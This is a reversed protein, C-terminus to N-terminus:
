NASTPTAKGPDPPFGAGSPNGSTAGSTTPLLTQSSLPDHHGPSTLATIARKEEPIYMGLSFKYLTGGEKPSSVSQAHPSGAYEIHPPTYGVGRDPETIMDGFQIQHVDTYVPTVRIGSGPYVPDPISVKTWDIVSLTDRWHNQIIEGLRDQGSPFLPYKVQDLMKPLVSRYELDDISKIADMTGCMRSGFRPKRPLLTVLMALKEYSVQAITAGPHFITTTSREVVMM